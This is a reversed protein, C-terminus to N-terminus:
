NRAAVVECPKQLASSEELISVVVIAAQETAAVKASIKKQDADTLEKVKVLCLSKAAKVEQFVLQCKRKMVHAMLVITLAVPLNIFVRRTVLHTM